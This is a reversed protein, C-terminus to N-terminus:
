VETEKLSILSGVQDKDVGGITAPCILYPNKKDVAELKMGIEFMNREPKEPEQLVDFINSFVVTCIRYM